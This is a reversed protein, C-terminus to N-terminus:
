KSLNFNRQFMVAPLHARLILILNSLNVTSVHAMNRKRKKQKLHSINCTTQLFQYLHNKDRQCSGDRWLIPVPSSSLDANLSDFVNQSLNSGWSQLKSNKVPNSCPLCCSLPLCINSLPASFLRLHELLRSTLVNSSNCGEVPRVAQREKTLLQKTKTWQQKKIRSQM